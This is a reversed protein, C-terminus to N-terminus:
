STSGFYTFLQLVILIRLLYLYSIKLTKMILSCCCKIYYEGLFADHMGAESIVLDFNLDSSLLKQVEPHQITHIALMATNNLVDFARFVHPIHTEEFLKSFKEIIIKNSLYQFIQHKGYCVM